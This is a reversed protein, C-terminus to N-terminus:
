NYLFKEYDTFAGSFVENLMRISEDYAPGVCLFDGYEGDIFVRKPCHKKLFDAIAARTNEPTDINVILLVPICGPIETVTNTFSVGPYNSSWGPRADWTRNNAYSVMRLYDYCKSNTGPPVFIIAAQVHDINTKACIQSFDECPKFVGTKMVVNKIGTIFDLRGNCYKRTLGTVCMTPIKVSAHLVAMGVNTMASTYVTFTDM